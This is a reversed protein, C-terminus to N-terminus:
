CTAAAPRVPLATLLLAAVAAVTSVPGLWGPSGLHLTLGGLASGLAIGAYNASANWGLLVPAVDPGVAILRHQQPVGTAWAAGPRRRRAM